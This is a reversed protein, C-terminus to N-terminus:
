NLEFLDSPSVQLKTQIDFEGCSLLLSIPDELLFAQWEYAPKGNDLVGILYYDTRSAAAQQLELPTLIVRGKEIFTKVELKVKRNGLECLFDYGCGDFRKDEHFVMGEWGSPLELRRKIEEEGIKGRDKQETSIGDSKKTALDADLKESIKSDTKGKSTFTILTGIFGKTKEDITKKHGKVREEIASINDSSEQLNKQVIKVPPPTPIAEEPMLPTKGTLMAHAMEQAELSIGLQHYLYNRIESPEGKIHQYRSAIRPFLGKLEDTTGDLFLPAISEGLADADINFISQDASGKMYLTYHYEEIAGSKQISRRQLYFM